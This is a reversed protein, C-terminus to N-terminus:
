KKLMGPLFGILSETTIEGIDAGYNEAYAAELEYPEM